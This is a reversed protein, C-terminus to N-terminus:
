RKGHLLQTCQMLMLGTCVNHNNKEVRVAATRGEAWPLFHIYSRCSIRLKDEGDLERM